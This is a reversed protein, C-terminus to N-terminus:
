ANGCQQSPRELERRDPAIRSEGAYWEMGLLWPVSVGHRLVLAALADLSFEGWDGSLLGALREPAIELTRAAARRDGGHHREILLEVRASVSWARSMYTM